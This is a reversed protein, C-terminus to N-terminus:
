VHNVEYPLHALSASPPMALGMPVAANASDTAGRGSPTRGNKNIM